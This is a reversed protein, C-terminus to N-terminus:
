TFGNVEFGERMHYITHIQKAAICLSAETQRYTMDRNFPLITKIYTLKDKNPSLLSSKLFNIDIKVYM